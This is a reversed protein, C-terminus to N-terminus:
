SREEAATAALARNYAWRADVHVLPGLSEPPAGRAGLTVMPLLPRMTREFVPMADALTAEGDVTAGQEIAEWIAAKRPARTTRPRM